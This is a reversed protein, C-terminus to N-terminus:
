FSSKFNSQCMTVTAEYKQKLFAFLIDLSNRIFLRAMHSEAAVETDDHADCKFKSKQHNDSCGTCVCHGCTLQLPQEAVYIFGLDCICCKTDPEILKPCEHTKHNVCELAKLIKIQEGSFTTEITM